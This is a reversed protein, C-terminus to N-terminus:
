EDRRICKRLEEIPWTPFDKKFQMLADQLCAAYYHGEKDPLECHSKIYYYYVFPKDTVLRLGYGSLKWQGPFKDRITWHAEQKNEAEIVTGDMQVDKSIIEYRRM